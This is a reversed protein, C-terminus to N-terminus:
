IEGLFVKRGFDKELPKVRVNAPLEALRQGKEPFKYEADFKILLSRDFSDLFMRFDHRFNNDHLLGLFTKHSHLITSHDRGGLAKGITNLSMGCLKCLVFCACQRATALDRKRSESKVDKLSLKYHNAVALVTAESKPSRSLSLGPYYYPDIM